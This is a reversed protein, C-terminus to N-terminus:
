FRHTRTLTCLDPQKCTYSARCKSSLYSVLLFGQELNFEIFRPLSTRVGTSSVGCFCSTPSSDISAQVVHHSQHRSYKYHSPGCTEGMESLAHELHPSKNYCVSSNWMNRGNLNIRKCNSDASSSRLIPPRPKAEGNAGYLKKATNFPWIATNFPRRVPIIHFQQSRELMLRPITGLSLVLSIM